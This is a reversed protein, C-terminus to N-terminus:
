PCGLAWRMAQMKLRSEEYESEPDSGAVIGCGAYLQASTGEILASRIAVVFAGQGRADMWGLPGGFWGRDFPEARRLLSLAQERPFGGVAPTPHLRQAVDLVTQGAAPAGAKLAGTIPTHLHQLHPLRLLSPEADVHLEACLPRLGQELARVVLAHERREKPDALLAAGLADDRAADAHRPASGAVAATTVAQGALTVLLEPTAGLFCSGGRDIAFVTCDDYRSLLRRLAAHLAFPTAAELRQRRALVVKDIAGEDIVQLLRRVRERWGEPSPDDITRVVNSAFDSAPPADADALQRPEALRDLLRLAAVTSEGESDCPLQLQVFRETGCRVALLRPVMVASRPWGEWGGESDRAADFAAGAFCLPGPGLPDVRGGRTLGLWAEAASAGPEAPLEVLGVAAVELGGDAQRWYLREAGAAREFLTIPDLQPAAAALTVLSGGSVAKADGAAEWTAVRERLAM